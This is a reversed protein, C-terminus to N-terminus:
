QGWCARFVAVLWVLIVILITWLAYRLLRAVRETM